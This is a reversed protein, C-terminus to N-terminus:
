PPPGALSVVGLFQCWRPSYRGVVTGLALAIGTTGSLLSVNPEDPCGPLPPALGAMGQREFQDLAQQAWRNAAAAWGPEDANISLLRLLLAFGASGHCLSGDTIGTLADPLAACKAAITKVEGILSADHTARAAMWLACAVGPDGYCWAQRRPAHSGVWGPFSVDTDNVRYKRVVRLADALLEACHPADLGAAKASALFSVLGPVGHALGLNLQGGPFRRQVDDDLIHRSEILWAPLGEFDGRLPLLQRICAAAISFDGTRRGRCVGYLGLGALGDTLDYPGDWAGRLGELLLADVDDLFSEVDLSPDLAALPARYADFLWAVGVLGGYLSPASPETALADVLADLLLKSLGQLQPAPEDGQADEFCYLLAGALGVSLSTAPKMGRWCVVLQENAYRRMAQFAAPAPATNM